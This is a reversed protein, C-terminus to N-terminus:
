VIELAPPDLFGAAQKKIVSYGNCVHDMGHSVEVRRVETMLEASIQSHRGTFEALTVPRMARAEVVVSFDRRKLM